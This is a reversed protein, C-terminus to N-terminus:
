RTRQLTATEVDRKSDIRFNGKKSKGFNLDYEIKIYLYITATIMSSATTLIDLLWCCKFAGIFLRWAGFRKWQFHLFRLIFLSYSFSHICQWFSWFFGNGFAPRCHLFLSPSFQSSIFLFPAFCVLSLLTFPRRNFCASMQKLIQWETNHCTPFTSYCEFLKLHFSIFRIETHVLFIGLRQATWAVTFHPLWLCLSCVLFPLCSCWIDIAVAPARCIFFWISSTFVDFIRKECAFSKRRWFDLLSQNTMKTYRCM